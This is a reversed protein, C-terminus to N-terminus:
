RVFVVLGLTMRVARWGLSLRGHHALRVFFSLHRALPRDRGDRAPRKVRVAHGDPTANRNAREDSKAGKEDPATPAAALRARLVFGCLGDDALSRGVLRRALRLRRGYPGVYGDLRCREPGDDPEWGLRRRSRGAILEQLAGPSRRHKDVIPRRPGRGRRARGQGTRVRGIRAGQLAHGALPVPEDDALVEQLRRVLDLLKRGGARAVLEDDFCKGSCEKRSLSSRCRRMVARKSRSIVKHSATRPACRMTIAVKPTAGFPTVATSSSASITTVSVQIGISCM